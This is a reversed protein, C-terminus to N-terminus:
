NCSRLFILYLISLVVSGAIGVAFLSGRGAPSSAASKSNEQPDLPNYSIPFLADQELYVPSTFQGSYTKAHAYYTFSIIFQNRDAPVGLTLTNMRSFQYKCATVRAQTELWPTSTTTM